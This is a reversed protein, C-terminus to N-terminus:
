NCVFPTVQRDCRKQKGEPVKQLATEAKETRERRATADKAIGNIGSCATKLLISMHLAGNVFLFPIITTL